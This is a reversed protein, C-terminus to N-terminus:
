LDATNRLVEHLDRPKRRRYESCFLFLIRRKGTKAGEFYRSIDVGSQSCSANVRFELSLQM